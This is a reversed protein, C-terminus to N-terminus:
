ANWTMSIKFDAEDGGSAVIVGASASLKIGFEVRVSDPKTDM